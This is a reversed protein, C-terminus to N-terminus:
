ELEIQTNDNVPIVKITEKDSLDALYKSLAHNLIKSSQLQKVAQLRVRWDPQHLAEVLVSMIGELALLNMENFANRFDPDKALEKYFFRRIIGIADCTASVNYTKGYEELWEKKKLKTFFHYERKQAVKVVEGNIIVDVTPKAKPTPKKKKHGKAKGKIPKKIPPTIKKEPM